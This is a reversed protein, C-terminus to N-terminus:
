AAPAAPDTKSLVTTVTSKMLKVKVGDAIEVEVTNDDIVKTVKGVIGGGTIIQDGRRVGQVMAKHQAVKKQQPRIMLFYMIVFILILPVFQVFASGSGGSGATQAYAATVFM